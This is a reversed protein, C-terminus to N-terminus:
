ELIIEVRQNKIAEEPLSNNYKPNYPGWGQVSMKRM